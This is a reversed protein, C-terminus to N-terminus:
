SDPGRHEKPEPNNVEVFNIDLSITPRRSTFHLGRLTSGSPGFITSTV